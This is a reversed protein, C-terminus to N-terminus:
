DAALDRGGTDLGRGGVAVQGRRPFITWHDDGQRLVTFIAPRYSRACFELVGVVLREFVPFEVDVHVASGVRVALNAALDLRLRPRRRHPRPVRYEGAAGCSRSTSGFCGAPNREEAGIMVPCSHGSRTTSCLPRMLQM